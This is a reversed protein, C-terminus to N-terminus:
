AVQEMLSTRFIPDGNRHPLSAAEPRVRIKTLEPGTALNQFRLMSTEAEEGEFLFSSITGMLESVQQADAMPLFNRLVRPDYFRFYLFKGTEELQVMLSRRLEHWITQPPQSSTLFIGWANSWGAAVIKQLMESRPELFVLYPAVAELERAAKGMYLSWYPAGGALLLPYIAPDRATDIVAYLPESQSSLVDAVTPIESIHFRIQFVSQGARILDGDQLMQELIRNDQLFTGNSSGLDRLLVQEELVVMEFHRGSLFRDWSICVNCTENRGVAVGIGRDLSAQLGAAPGSVGHLVAKM